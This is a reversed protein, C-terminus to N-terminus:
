EDEGEPALDTSPFDDQEAPPTSGKPMLVISWEESTEGSPEKWGRFTAGGKKGQHSSDDDEKAPPQMFSGVVIGGARTPRSTARSRRPQCRLELIPPRLSRPGRTRSDKQPDGIVVLVGDSGSEAVGLRMQRLEGNTGDRVMLTGENTVREVIHAPAEAALPVHLPLPDLPQTQPTSM